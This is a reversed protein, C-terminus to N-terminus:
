FSYTATAKKNKLVVQLRGPMFALLNELTKNDIKLWKVKLIRKPDQRNSIPHKDVKTKFHKWLLIIPNLDFSRSPKEFVQVIICFSFASILLRTSMITIKINSLYQKIAFSKTNKVLNHELINTYTCKRIFIEMM